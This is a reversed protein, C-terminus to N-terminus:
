KAKPATDSVCYTTLAAVEAEKRGIKQGLSQGKNDVKVGKHPVKIHQRWLSKIILSATDLWATAIHWLGQQATSQPHGKNGM